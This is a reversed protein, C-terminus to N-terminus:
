ARWRDMCPKSSAQRPWSRPHAQEDGGQANKPHPRTRVGPRSAKVPVRRHSRRPGSAAGVTLPSRHRHRRRLVEARVQRTTAPLHAKVRAGLVALSFARLRRRRGGFGEARRRGVRWSPHPLHHERLRRRRLLDRLPMGVDLVILDPNQEARKLRSRATGPPRAGHLVRPRNGTRRRGRAAHNRGGREIAAAEQGSVNAESRRMRRTACPAFCLM